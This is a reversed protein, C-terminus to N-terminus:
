VSAPSSMRPSSSPLFFTEPLSLSHRTQHGFVSKSATRPGQSGAGRSGRLTTSPLRKPPPRSAGHHLLYRLKGGQLPPKKVISRVSSCAGDSRAVYSRPM